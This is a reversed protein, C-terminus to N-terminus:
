DEVATALLEAGSEEETVSYNRVEGEAATINVTYEALTDSSIPDYKKLHLTVPRLFPLDDLGPTGPISPHQHRAWFHVSISKTRPPPDPPDGEGGPLELMQTFEWESTNAISGALEGSNFLTTALEVEREIPSEEAGTDTITIQIFIRVNEKRRPLRLSIGGDAASEALAAGTISLEFGLGGLVQRLAAAFAARTCLRGRGPITTLIKKAALDVTANGAPDAGPGPFGLSGAQAAPLGMGQLRPRMGAQLRALALALGRRTLIRGGDRPVDVRPKPHAHLDPM